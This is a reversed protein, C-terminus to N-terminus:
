PRERFADVPSSATTTIASVTGVEGLPVNLGSDDVFVSLDACALGSQAVSTQAALQASAQAGATTRSLSADRAAAVAASEVANGALAVRAGVVLLLIVLVLAPAILVLEVSMSGREGSGHLRGRLWRRLRM